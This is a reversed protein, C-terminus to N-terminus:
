TRHRQQMALPPSDNKAESTTALSADTIALSDEAKEVKKRAEYKRSGPALQEMPGNHWGKTPSFIATPIGRAQIQRIQQPSSFPMDCQNCKYPRTHYKMHRNLDCRRNFTKDCSTCSFQHSSSLILTPFSKAWQYRPAPDSSM